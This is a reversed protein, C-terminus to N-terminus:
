QLKKILDKTFEDAGQANLHMGDSFYGNNHVYKPDNSFDLLPINREKCITKVTDLILTDMGYWVPSVALTVKIGSDEAKNLFKRLYKIRLSNYGGDYDSYLSAINKQVKLSDFSENMPRFGKIGNDTSLRLYYNAINQLFSSNHRYLGSIMKYKETADVDAFISNIGQRNYHQKLRYLFKHNDEGQLYDYGPTIEYIIHQPIHREILMLLRGYALIIGAGSEGCNYCSMDLSDSIMQADYHHEARSSGFILIDDTVVNCIYNDRGTGGVDIRSVIYDLSKSVVYDIAALLVCFLGIKFIFNRM